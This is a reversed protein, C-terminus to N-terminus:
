ACAKPPDYSMLDVCARGAPTGVLRDGDVSWSWTDVNVVLSGRPDLPDRRAWSFLRGDDVYVDVSRYSDNNELGLPADPDGRLAILSGDQWAYALLVAADGGQTHTLLVQEQGDRNIDLPERLDFYGFPVVATAREGGVLVVEVAGAAPDGRGSTPDQLLRVDDPRGDGDVDARQSDLVAMGDLVEIPPGSVAAASAPEANPEQQAGDDNRLVFPVVLVAATVGVLLLLLLRNRSSGRLSTEM